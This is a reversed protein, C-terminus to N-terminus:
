LVVGINLPLIIYTNESGIVLSPLVELYVSTQSSLSFAWGMGGVVTPGSIEEEEETDSFISFYGGLGFLVYPSRYNQADLTVIGLIQPTVFYGADDRGQLIFGTLGAGAAISFDTTVPFSIRGHLGLGVPRKSDTTLTPTFGFGFRSSSSQAQSDPALLVILCGILIVRGMVFFAIRVDSCETVLFQELRQM